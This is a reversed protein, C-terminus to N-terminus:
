SESAKCQAAKVNALQATAKCQHWLYLVFCLVLMACGLYWHGKHTTVGQIPLLALGLGEGGRMKRITAQECDAHNGHGAISALGATCTPHHHTCFGRTVITQTAANFPVKSGTTEKAM